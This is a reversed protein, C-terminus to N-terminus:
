SADNRLDKAAHKLAEIVEDKTRDLSDNWRALNPHNTVKKLAPVAERFLHTMWQVGYLQRAAEDLSGILCAATTEEIEAGPGYSYTKLQNQLWELEGTELMEAARELATAAKSTMTEGM